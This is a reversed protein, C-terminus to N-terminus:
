EEAWHWASTVEREKKKKPKRKKVEGRGRRIKERARRSTHEVGL